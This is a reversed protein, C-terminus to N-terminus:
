SGQAAPPLNKWFAERSKRLEESVCDPYDQFNTPEFLQADQPGLKTASIM